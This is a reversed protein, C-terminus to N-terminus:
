QSMKICPFERQRGPSYPYPSDEGRALSTAVFLLILRKYSRCYTLRYFTVTNMSIASLGLRITQSAGPKLWRLHNLPCCIFLDMGKPNGLPRVKRRSSGLTISARAKGAQADSPSLTVVTCLSLTCM